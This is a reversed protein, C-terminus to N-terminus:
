GPSPSSTEGGSGKFPNQPEGDSPARASTLQAGLAMGSVCSMLIQVAEVVAEGIKEAAIRDCFQDFNIKPPDDDGAWERCIFLLSAASDFGDLVATFIGAVVRLNVKVKEGEIQGITGLDEPLADGIRKFLRVGTEKEFKRLSHMTPRFTWKGGQSDVFM